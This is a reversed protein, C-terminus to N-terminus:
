AVAKTQAARRRAAWADMLVHQADRDANWAAIDELTLQCPSVTTWYDLLLLLYPVRLDAALARLDDADPWDMPAHAEVIRWTEFTQAMM